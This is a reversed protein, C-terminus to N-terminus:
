SFFIFNVTVMSVVKPLITEIPKPMQCKKTGLIQFQYEYMSLVAVSSTIATLAIFKKKENDSANNPIVLRSNTKLFCLSLNEINTASDIDETKHIARHM